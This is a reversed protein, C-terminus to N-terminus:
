VQDSVLEMSDHNSDNSTTAQSFNEAADDDNDKPAKLMEDDNDYDDLVTKENGDEIIGTEQNRNVASCSDLWHFSDSGGVGDLPLCDDFFFMQYLM